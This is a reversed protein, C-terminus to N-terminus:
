GRPAAARRLRDSIALGVGQQPIPAVAIRDAGTEDARHMLDFLNRAAEALDGTHSLNFVAAAAGMGTIPEPGFALLVEDPEVKRANLRLAARPAYHSSLTGPSLRVDDSDAEIVLMDTAAAIDEATLAGQRLIALGAEGARLVTSEVGLRTPGGDVILSVRDGLDEVVHRATTPSIRGSTNASPAAVPLGLEAIVKHAFGAPARLAALEQGATSSRDIGGQRLPLILTLPGPWFIEALKRSVPDFDAYEQAMALDAVHSILPNSSPRGKAAYIRAIAESSTSLGALGYVTETPLAVLEHRKLTAVALSVADASNSDIIM